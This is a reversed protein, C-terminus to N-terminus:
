DATLLCDTYSGVEQIEASFRIGENKKQLMILGNCQCFDFKNAEYHKKFFFKPPSKGQPDLIVANKKWPREVTNEFCWLEKKKLWFKFIKAKKFLPLM